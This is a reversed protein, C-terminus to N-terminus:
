SCRTLGCSVNFYFGIEGVIICFRPAPEAEYPRHTSLLCCAEDKAADTWIGVQPEQSSRPLLGVAQRTQYTGSERIRGGGNHSCLEKSLFACHLFGVSWRFPVPAQSDSVMISAQKSAWGGNRDSTCGFTLIPSWFINGISTCRVLFLYCFTQKHYFYLPFAKVSNQTQLKM